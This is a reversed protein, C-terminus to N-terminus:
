WGLAQHAIGFLLIRVKFLGGDQFVLKEKKGRMNEPIAYEVLSTLRPDHRCAAIFEEATIKGDKDSDM